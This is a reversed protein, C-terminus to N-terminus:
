QANLLVAVQGYLIPVLLDPAGDNNFDGTAIAYGGEEYKFAPVPNQFTGDGNGYLLGASAVPDGNFLGVAIDPNGDLNFDAIVVSSPAQGLSITSYAARKSFTGDGKGLLVVVEQNFASAAVIDPIGDHNVDAVAADLLEPGLAYRAGEQFTGDGNNMLIKLTFKDAEGWANDEGVVLDVHGDANLDAATLSWPSDPMSYRVAPGFTGDGNGFRVFVCGVGVSLSPFRNAVALDLKGDGNFDALVAAIPYNGSHYKTPQYTFTGNGNGLYVSAVGGAPTFRTVVLDIKGDGNLDGAALGVPSYDAWFKQVPQFTGDGRGLFVGVKGEEVLTVAFDLNGDNNFDATVVQQGGSKGTQYFVAPDFQQASLSGALMLAFAALILASRQM